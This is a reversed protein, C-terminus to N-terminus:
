TTQKLQAKDCKGAAVEKKLVDLRELNSRTLSAYQDSLSKEMAHRTKKEFKYFNEFHKLLEAKTEKDVKIRKINQINKIFLWDM